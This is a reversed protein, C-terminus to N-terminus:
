AIIPPSGNAYSKVSSHMLNGQRGQFSLKCGQYVVYFRCM